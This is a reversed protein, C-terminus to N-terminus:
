KASSYHSSHSIHSAHSFHLNNTNKMFSDRQSPSLILTYSYQDESLILTDSYIEEFLPKYVNISDMHSKNCYAYWLEQSSSNQSEKDKSIPYWSNGIILGITNNRKQVKFVNNDVVRPLRKTYFSRYVKQCYGSASFLFTM